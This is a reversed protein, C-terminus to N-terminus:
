DEECFNISSKSVNQDVQKYQSSAQQNHLLISTTNNYNLFFFSPSFSFLHLFVEFNYSFFYSSGAHM